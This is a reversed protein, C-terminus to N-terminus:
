TAVFWVVLAIASALMVALSGWVVYERMSRKRAEAPDYPPALNGLHQPQQARAVESMARLKVHPMERDPKEVPRLNPSAPTKMSIAQIRPAPAAPQAPLVPPPPQMPTESQGRPVPTRGAKAAPGDPTTMYPSKAKPTSSAKAGPSDPMTAYPSKAKVAPRDPATAYPSRNADDAEDAQRRADRADREGSDYISTPADDAYDNAAPAPATGKKTPKYTRSGM